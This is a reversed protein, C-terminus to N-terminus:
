RGEGAMAKKAEDLSKEWSKIVNHLQDALHDLGWAPMHVDVRLIKGGPTEGHFQLKFSHDSTYPGDLDIYAVNDLNLVRKGNM